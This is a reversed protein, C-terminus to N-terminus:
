RPLTNTFVPWPIKGVGIEKQSIFFFVFFPKSIFLLLIYHGSKSETYGLYHRLHLSITVSRSSTLFVLESKIEVVDSYEFTMEPAFIYLM